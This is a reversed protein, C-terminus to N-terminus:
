LLEGKRSFTEDRLHTASRRNTKAFGWLPKVDYGPTARIRAVGPRRSFLHGVGVPNCRAAIHQHFFSTCGRQPQHTPCTTGLTARIRAVRTKSTCGRQPQIRVLRRGGTGRPYASWRRNNVNLAEPTSPRICYAGVWRASVNLAEPTGFGIKKECRLAVGKRMSSCKVFFHAWDRLSLVKNVTPKLRRYPTGGVLDRLSSVQYAFHRGQPVQHHTGDQRLNFGVTLLTNDRRSKGFACNSKFSYVKESFARTHSLSEAKPYPEYLASDIRERLTIDTLLVTNQLGGIERVAPSLKKTKGYPVVQKQAVKKMRM